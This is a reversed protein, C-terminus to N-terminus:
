TWSENGLEKLITRGIAKTYEVRGGTDTQPVTLNNGKVLIKKSVSFQWSVYKCSAYVYFRM